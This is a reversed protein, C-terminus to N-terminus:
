IVTGASAHEGQRSTPEPAQRPARRCVFEDPQKRLRARNGRDTKQDTQKTTRPEAMGVCSANRLIVDLSARVDEDEPADEEDEDDAEGSREVVAAPSRTLIEAVEGGEEVADDDDDIDAIDAIDDDEVPRRKSDVVPM